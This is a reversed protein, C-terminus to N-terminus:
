YTGEKYRVPVKKVGLERLICYRQNGLIVRMDRKDIQLPELMGNKLIDIKLAKVMCYEPNYIIEPTLADMDVWIYPKKTNKFLINISM